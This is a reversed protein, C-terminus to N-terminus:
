VRFIRYEFTHTAHKALILKDISVMSDLFFFLIKHNICRMLAIHQTLHTDACHPFDTSDQQFFLLIKLLKLWNYLIKLSGSNEVM